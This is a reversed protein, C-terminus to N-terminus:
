NRAGHWRKRAIIQMKDASERQLMFDVQTHTDVDELVISANPFVGATRTACTRSQTRDGTVHAHIRKRGLAGLQDSICRNNSLAAYDM